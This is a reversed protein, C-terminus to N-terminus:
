YRLRYCNRCRYRSEGAPLYLYQCNSNCGNCVFYFIYGNALNSEVFHFLQWSDHKGQISELESYCITPGNLLMLLNSADHETSIKGGNLGDVSGDSLSNKLKNVCETASIRSCHKIYRKSRENVRLM